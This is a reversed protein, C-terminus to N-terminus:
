KEPVNQVRNNNTNVIVSVIEAIEEDTRTEEIRQFTKEKDKQIQALENAHKILYVINKNLQENKSLLQKNEAKLKKNDKHFVSVVGGLTAIVAILVLIITVTVNM